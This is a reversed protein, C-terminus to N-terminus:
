TVNIISDKEFFDLNKTRYGFFVPVSVMIYRISEKKLLM